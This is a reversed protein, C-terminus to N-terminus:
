KMAAGDVGADDGGSHWRKPQPAEEAGQRRQKIMKMPAGDVGADDGGSHWRKPQPAEEAGQRRQKIMKMPAGDVGEDGGRRRSQAARAADLEEAYGQKQKITEM